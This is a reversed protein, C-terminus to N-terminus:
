QDHAMHRPPNSMDCHVRTALGDMVPPMAVTFAVTDGVGTVEGRDPQWRAMKFKAV